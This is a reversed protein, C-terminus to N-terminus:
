RRRLGNFMLQSIGEIKSEILTYEDDVIIAAILSVAGTSMITSALELDDVHFVRRKIGDALIKMVIEKYRQNFEKVADGIAELVNPKVDDRLTLLFGTTRLSTFLATLAAVLRAEPSDAEAVAAEVEQITRASLMETVSKLLAQKNPFYYYISTTALGAATAIDDLTTKKVGQKRLVSVAVDLM